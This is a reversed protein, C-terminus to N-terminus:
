KTKRQNCEPGLSLLTWIREHLLSDRELGGLNRGALNRSKGQYGEMVHKGIIRLFDVPSISGEMPCGKSNHTEFRAPQPGSILLKGHGMAMLHVLPLELQKHGLCQLPNIVPTDKHTEWFCPARKILEPGGFRVGLGTGLSRSPSKHQALAIDPTPQFAFILGLPGPNRIADTQSRVPNTKLRGHLPHGEKTRPM